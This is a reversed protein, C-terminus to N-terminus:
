LQEPQKRLADFDGQECCRVFGETYAKLADWERRIRESEAENISRDEAANTISELLDAFQQIIENTTPFLDVQHCRTRGPNKVFYGGAQQCLWQMIRLDGTIKLLELVRDLPNDVGSGKGEGPQAWKYVLSLSLGLQAAIEKPSAKQLAERLVTYSEM